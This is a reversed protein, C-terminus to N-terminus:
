NKESKLLDVGKKYENMFKNKNTSKAQSIQPIFLLFLISIKLIFKLKDM